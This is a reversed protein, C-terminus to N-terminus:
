KVKEIAELVERNMTRQELRIDDQAKRIYKVDTKLEVVDDHDAEVDEQLGFCDAEVDEVREYLGGFFFVWTGVVLALTIIVGIIKPWATQKM